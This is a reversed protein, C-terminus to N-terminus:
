EALLLYLHYVFYGGLYGSVCSPLIIRSWFYPKKHLKLHKSFFVGGFGNAVVIVLTSLSLFFAWVLLDVYYKYNNIGVCNNIWACHADM